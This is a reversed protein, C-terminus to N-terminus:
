LLGVHCYHEMLLGLLEATKSPNDIKREETELPNWNVRWLSSGKVVFSSTNTWRFIAKYAGKRVASREHNEYQHFYIGVQPRDFTSGDPYELLPVLSTGDVQSANVPAGGALENFTALLDYGVVPKHCRSGPAILPGRVIWPVRLGGEKASHKAGSLPYNTPLSSNDGGPIKKRGGNDSTFFVYTHNAIGLRDLADLIAGVGLDLEQASAAFCPSYRRDPPGRAEYADLMCQTCTVLLHVAYYSVQVYFPEASHNTMFDIARQTVSFTAKPDLNNVLWPDETDIPNGDGNNTSGDSVEFGCEAPTSGMLRGWKGFHATRYSANAARMASAITPHDAPVWSSGQFCCGSRATSVGGMIARRTPTCVAAPAYGNSFVMGSAALRELNPTRIYPSSTNLSPRDDMPVSTQTWGLDDAVILIVNPPAAVVGGIPVLACILLCWFMVRAFFFCIVRTQHWLCYYAHRVM